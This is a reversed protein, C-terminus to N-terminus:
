LIYLCNPPLEPAKMFDYLGIVHEYEDKIAVM